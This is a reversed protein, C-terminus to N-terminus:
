CLRLDQGNDDSAVDEIHVQDCEQYLCFFVFIFDSVCQCKCILSVTISVLGKVNGLLLLGHWM